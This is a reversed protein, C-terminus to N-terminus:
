RWANSRPMPVQNGSYPRQDVTDSFFSSRALAVHEGPQDLM